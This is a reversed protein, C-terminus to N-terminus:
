PRAFRDMKRDIEAATMRAPGYTPEPEPAVKAACRQVASAIAASKHWCVLGAVGAPCSCRAQLNVISEVYVTYSQDGSQSSVVRYTREAIREARRGAKANVLARANARQWQATIPAAIKISM